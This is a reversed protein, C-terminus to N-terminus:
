LGCSQLLTVYSDAMGQWALYFGVAVLIAFETVLPHEPM